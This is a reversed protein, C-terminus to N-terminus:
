PGAVGVVPAPPVAVEAPSCTGASGGGFGYVTIRGVPLGGARYRCRTGACTMWHRFNRGRGAPWCNWRALVLRGDPVRGIAVLRDASVAPWGSFAAVDSYALARGPLILLPDM